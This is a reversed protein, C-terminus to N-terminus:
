KKLFGKRKLRNLNFPGLRLKHREALFHGCPTPGVCQTPKVDYKKILKAYPYEIIEKGKNNKGWNIAKNKMEYLTDEDIGVEIFVHNCTLCEWALPELFPLKPNEWSIKETITKRM